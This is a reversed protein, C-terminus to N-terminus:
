LGLPKITTSTLGYGDIIQLFSVSPFTDVNHSRQYTAISGNLNHKSTIAESLELQNIWDAVTTGMVDSNCDMLLVIQDGEEQWQKISQGLNDLIAQQLNRDLGQADFVRQHQVFTTQLGATSPTCPRYACIVWLTM